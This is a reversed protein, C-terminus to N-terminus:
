KQPIQAPQEHHYHYWSPTKFEVKAFGTITLLVLGIITCIVVAVIGSLFLVALMCSCGAVRGLTRGIFAGIKEGFEKLKM